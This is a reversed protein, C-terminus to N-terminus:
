RWNKKSSKSNKTNKIEVLKDDDIKNQTKKNKQTSKPQETKNEKEEM